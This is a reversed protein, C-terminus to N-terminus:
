RGRSGKRLRARLWEALRDESLSGAALAVIAAVVDEETADFRAGNLELFVVMVIFAIRKNGDRYPHNRALGFGYAAALAALDSGPEYHSRRRPRALASELANEDRVGALGGHERVQDLHVADVVVRPVWRPERM